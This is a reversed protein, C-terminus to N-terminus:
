DIGSKENKSPINFKIMYNALVIANIENPPYYAITFLQPSFLVCKNKRLM